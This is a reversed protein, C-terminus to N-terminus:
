LLGIRSRMRQRQANQIQQISGNTQVIYSALKAALADGFSALAVCKAYFRDGTMVGRQGRRWVWELMWDKAGERSLEEFVVFEPRADTSSGIMGHPHSALRSPMVGAFTRPDYPLATPQVPKDVYLPARGQTGANQVAEKPISTLPVGAHIKEPRWIRTVGPRDQSVSSGGYPSEDDPENENSM